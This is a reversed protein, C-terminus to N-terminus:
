RFGAWLGDPLASRIANKTKALSNELLDINSFYENHQRKLRLALSFFEINSLVSPVYFIPAFRTVRIPVHIELSQALNTNLKNTIIKYLLMEDFYLRRYFLATM